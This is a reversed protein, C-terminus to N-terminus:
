PRRKLQEPVHVFTILPMLQLNYEPMGAADFRGMNRAARALTVKIRVISGDALNFESFKETSELIPVEIAKGITGDPFPVDIIHEDMQM